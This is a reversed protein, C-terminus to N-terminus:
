QNQRRWRYFTVVNYIKRLTGHVRTRKVPDLSGLLIGFLFRNIKVLTARVARRRLTGFDFATLAKFESSSYPKKRSAMERRFSAELVSDVYRTAQAFSWKPNCAIEDYAQSAILNIRAEDRLVAAVEAMNSHDKKLPVYHRWPELVGSYDGEYLIMLTRLAASEFCRPSIQAFSIRGDDLPFYLERLEEFSTHPKLAVHAEVKRQIQGSFDVVSAGSEVGLMAKCSSVFKIWANGYLRDEERFSIDVTLGHESAEQKVRIGIRIKEQGLEGLWAPVNRGRYGIDIARDATNPVPRKLLAEPVYGTLVNVVTVGPLREPPYVNTIENPPACTFLVHIGIERMADTSKDVFRYEDQIFIAKLGSFAALRSRAKGSLYFNSSAVLTYHIVIADFRDVDIGAPIDGLM